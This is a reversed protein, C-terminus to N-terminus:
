FQWGIVVSGSIEDLDSGIMAEAQAGLSWGGGLGFRASASSLVGSPDAVPALVTFPASGGDAFALRADRGHEVVAGLGLHALGPDIGM